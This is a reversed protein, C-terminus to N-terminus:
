HRPLAQGKDGLYTRHHFILLGDQSGPQTQEWTPSSGDNAAPWAGEQRQLVGRGWQSSGSSGRLHAEPSTRILCSSSLHSQPESLLFDRRNAPWDYGQTKVQCLM